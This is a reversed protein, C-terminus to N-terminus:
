VREGAAVTAGAFSICANAQSASEHRVNSPTGEQLVGGPDEAVPTKAMRFLVSDMWDAPNGM